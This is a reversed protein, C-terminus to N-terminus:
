QLTGHILGSVAGRIESELRQTLDRSDAGQASEAPQVLAFLWVEVASGRPVVYSWRQRALEIGGDEGQDVARLEIRDEAFDVDIPADPHDMIQEAAIAGATEAAFHWIDDDSMPHDPHLDIREIWLLEDGDEHEALRWAGDGEVFLKWRRPARLIMAGGVDLTEFPEAALARLSADAM